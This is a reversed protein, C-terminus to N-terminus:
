NLSRKGILSRAKELYSTLSRYWEDNPPIMPLLAEIRQVIEPPNPYGLSALAEISMEEAAIWDPSGM